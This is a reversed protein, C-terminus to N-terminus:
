EVDWVVVRGSKGGAAARLGDPAFALSCVDGVPWAYEARLHWDCADYLTVEGRNHGVALRSGDPSFALTTIRSRGEKPLRAVPEGDPVDWVCVERPGASALLPEGPHFVFGVLRTPHMKWRNLEERAELDWLRVRGAWPGVTALFRGDGSVALPSEGLVGGGARLNSLEAWDAVNWCRLHNHCAALLTGGGPTFAFRTVGNPVAPPFTIERPDDLDFWGFRNEPVSLVAAFLSELQERSPPIHPALAQARAPRHRILAVRNEGFFAIQDVREGAFRFLTEGAGGPGFDWVRIEGGFGGDATVLRGGDPVFALGTVASPHRGLILM